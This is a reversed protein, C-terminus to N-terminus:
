EQKRFYDELRAQLETCYVADVTLRNIRGQVLETSGGGQLSLEPGYQKLFALATPKQGAPFRMTFSIQQARRTAIFCPLNNRESWSASLKNTQEATLDDIIFLGVSGTASLEGAYAHLWKDTITKLQRKLERQEDLLMQVRQPLDDVEMSLLTGLRRTHENLKTYYAYASRGIKSLVRIHKRIKETSIIKILGIEATQQVHLGGCGTCDHEGIQIVRIPDDDVMIDRRLNYQSLDARHIWIQKVPINQTIVGNAHDEVVQLQERTLDTTNLEILTNESGLHVSVTEMKYLHNFCASLVHQGTHQRMNEYRYDWDLKMEVSVPLKEAVLHWVMGDEKRVDLVPFGNIWGRDAAQGGGQPYFVTEEFAFWTGREDEQRDVLQTQLRQLYPESFYRL